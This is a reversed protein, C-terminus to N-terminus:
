IYLHFILCRIYRKLIQRWKEVQKSIESHLRQKAGAAKSLNYVAVKWEVCLQRRYNSNQHQLIRDVIKKWGSGTKHSFGVNPQCFQSRVSPSQKSLLLCPFCFFGEKCPNWALWDRPFFEGNPMKYTHILLTSDPVIM